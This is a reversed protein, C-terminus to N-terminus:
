KKSADAADIINIDLNVADEPVAACNFRVKGLEQKMELHSNQIPKLDDSIRDDWSLGREVLTHLDLKLTATIPTIKRNLWVSRCSKICM